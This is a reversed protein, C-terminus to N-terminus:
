SVAAINAGGVRVFIDSLVVPNNNYLEGQYEEDIKVLVDSKLTGAQVLLGAIRVGFKNVTVVANGNTPILTAMGIGLIVQNDFEAM